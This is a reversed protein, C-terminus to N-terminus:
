KISVSLEYLTEPDIDYNGPWARTGNRVTASLFTKQNKLNDWPKQGLYPNMDFLKEEENEFVIIM